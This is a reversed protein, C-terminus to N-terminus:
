RSGANSALLPELAPRAVPIIYADGRPDIVLADPIPQGRLLMGSVHAAAVSTGSIIKYGGKKWTSLVHVGPAAYDVLGPGYNSFIPWRDGQAIATVTIVRKGQARAPSFNSVHAGQNGAAIVFTVRRSARQVAKDVAPDGAAGISFNVVDCLLGGDADKATAVYEIGALVDATFGHGHGDVVKVGVVTAGSAIGVIAKGSAKAAIVGAIHTGHGNRDDPDGREPGVRVFSRSWRRSVNLDPHSLDVGSDVVCVTADVAASGGSRIVNWLDPPPTDTTRGPGTTGAPGTADEASFGALQFGRDRQVSAIESMSRARALEWRGLTASFGPLSTEFVRDPTVGLREAVSLAGIRSDDALVIVYSGPVPSTGAWLSLAIVLTTLCVRIHPIGLLMAPM